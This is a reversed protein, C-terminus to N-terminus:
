ELDPQNLPLLMIAISYSQYMHLSRAAARARPGRRRVQTRYLSSVINWPDWLPWWWLYACGMYKKPLPSLHYRRARRLKEWIFSAAIAQSLWALQEICLTEHLCFRGPRIHEVNAVEEDLGAFLFFCSAWIRPQLAIVIAFVYVLSYFEPFLMRM